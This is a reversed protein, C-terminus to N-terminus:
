PQSLAKLQLSGLAWSVGRPPIVNYMQCAHQMALPYWPYDIEGLLFGALIGVSAASGPARLWVHLGACGQKTSSIPSCIHVRSVPHEQGTLVPWTFPFPLLYKLCLFLGTFLGVSDLEREKQLLFLTKM